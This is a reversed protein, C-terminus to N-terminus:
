KRKSLKKGIKTMSQFIPVLDKGVPGLSYKVKPPKCPLVTRKIILEAEFEKLRTALVKASINNLVNKLEGYFLPGNSLHYIIELAWARSIIKSCTRIPCIEKSSNM